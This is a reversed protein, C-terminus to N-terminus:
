YLKPAEREDVHRRLVADHVVQVAVAFEVVAVGLEQVPEGVFQKRPGPVIAV